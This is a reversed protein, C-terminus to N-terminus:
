VISQELGSNCQSMMKQGLKKYVLCNAWLRGWTHRAHRWKSHSVASHIKVYFDYEVKRFKQREGKGPVYNHIYSLTLLSFSNCCSLRNCWDPIEAYIRQGEIIIADRDSLFNLYVIIFYKIMAIDNYYMDMIVNYCASPGKLVVQACCSLYNNM